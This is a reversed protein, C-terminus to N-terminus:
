CDLELYEKVRLIASITLSDNIKGQITWQYAKKFPVKIVQQNEVSDPKPKKRVLDRALFIHAFEDIIGPSTNIYGLNKWRKATVGAEERLERKAVKIFPERKSSAGRPIELTYKKLPYRYEKILYIENNKALAVVGSCNGLEVVSYIGKEKDPRIVKDERVRIWPNKYVVKSSLKKWPNKM